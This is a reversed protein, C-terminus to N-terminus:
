GGDRIDKYRGPKQTIGYQTNVDSHKYSLGESSISYTNNTMTPRPQRM